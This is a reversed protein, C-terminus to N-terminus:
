ECAARLYRVLTEHINWAGETPVTLITVNGREKHMKCVKAVASENHALELLYREQFGEFKRPNRQMWGRLNQSPYLGKMWDAGTAPGKPLNRPWEPEIFIRYGDEPQKPEFASKTRIL